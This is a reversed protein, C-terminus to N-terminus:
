SVIGSQSFVPNIIIEENVPREHRRLTEPAAKGRAFTEAPTEAFDQPLQSLEGADHLEDGASLARKGRSTAPEGRTPAPSLINGLSGEIRRRLIAM